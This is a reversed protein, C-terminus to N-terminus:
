SGLEVMFLDAAIGDSLFRANQPIRLVDGDWFLHNRKIHTPAQAELYAVFLAGFHKKIHDLSVGWETRLGTMIYENFREKTSLTETTLPLEGKQIAKVYQTNNSVNWSRQKEGDFSHASPGIGLYPKGKWYNSNNVAYFNPKGFNSFEYNSYGATQLHKVLYQYQEQVKEEPLEVVTNNKVWHALTTKPEVTLAYAAIHPPSYSLATPCEM